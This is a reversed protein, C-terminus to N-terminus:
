TFSGAKEQEDAWKNFAEQTTKGEQLPGAATTESKGLLTSQGSGPESEHYFLHGFRDPTERMRKVADPISLDRVVDNGDDDKDRYHVVAKYGIVEKKANKEPVLETHARILPALTEMSVAKHASCANM